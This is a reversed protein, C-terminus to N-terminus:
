RPHATLDQGLMEPLALRDGGTVQEVGDVGGRVLSGQAGGLGLQGLGLGLELEGLVLRVAVRFQLGLAGHGAGLGLLVGVGGHDQPLRDAGPLRLHLLGPQVQVIAPHQRGNGAPRPGVQGVRPGEDLGVLGGQHHYVLDIGDM